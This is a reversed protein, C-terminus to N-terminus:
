LEHLLFNEILQHGCDTLISEPHFQVGYIPYQTHQLSMVEGIECRATIIIESSLKQECVILSHYRGVKLPSPIESFIGKSNHKIISPKGHMPRLAQKVEGGFVQGIAQHGLCIGLIPIRHGLLRIIEMSIGAENPTCPGPSLIIHSPNFAILDSITLANNRHVQTKFGLEEVYRVVNFVFSDYNDIVLVMNNM